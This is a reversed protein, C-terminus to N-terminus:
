QWGSSEVAVARLEAVLDTEGRPCRDGDLDELQLDRRAAPQDTPKTELPYLPEPPLLSAAM